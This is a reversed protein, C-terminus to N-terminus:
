DKLEKFEKDDKSDKLLEQYEAGVRNLDSDFDKSIVLFCYMVFIFYSMIGLEIGGALCVAFIKYIYYTDWFIFISILNLFFLILYFICKLFFNIEYLIYSIKASIYNSTFAANLLFCGCAGYILTYVIQLISTLNKSYLSNYLYLASMILFIISIFINGTVISCCVFVDSQQTVPPVFLLLFKDRKDDSSKEM